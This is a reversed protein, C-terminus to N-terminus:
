NLLHCCKRYDPMWILEDFENLQIESAKTSNNLLSSKVLDEDEDPSNFQICTKRLTTKSFRKKTVVKKGKAKLFDNFRHRIIGINKTSVKETM